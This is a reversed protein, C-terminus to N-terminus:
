VLDLRQASNPNVSSVDVILDRFKNAPLDLLLNLLDTSTNRSNFDPSVLEGAQYAFYKGYKQIMGPSISTGSQLIM